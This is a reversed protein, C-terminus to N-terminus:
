KDYHSLELCVQDIEKITMNPYFPVNILRQTLSITNELCSKPFEKM